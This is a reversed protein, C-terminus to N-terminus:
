NKLHPRIEEGFVKIGTVYDNWSFMFGSTGTREIITDIKEAVTKPTGYIVPASTFAM